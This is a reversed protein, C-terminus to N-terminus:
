VLLAISFHKEILIAKMHVWELGQVKKMAKGHYLMQNGSEIKDIEQLLM